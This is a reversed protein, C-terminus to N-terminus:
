HNNSVVLTDLVARAKAATALPAHPDLLLYAAFHRGSATFQVAGGPGPWCEVAPSRRLPLVQATFRPPRRPWVIGKQAHVWEVIMLGVGGRAFRFTEAKCGRPFSRIKTSAVVIRVLPDSYPMSQPAVGNRFFAWGPPLRVTVGASGARGPKPGSTRGASPAATIFTPAVVAFALSVSGIALKTM